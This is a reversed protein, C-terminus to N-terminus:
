IVFRKKTKKKKCSWTRYKMWYAQEGTIDMNLARVLTKSATWTAQLTQKEM